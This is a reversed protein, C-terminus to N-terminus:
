VKDRNKFGSDIEWKKRFHKIENETYFHQAFKSKYMKDLYSDPLRITGKFKAYLEAYDKQDGINQQIIKINDISLLKNIAKEACNNLDELRILLIDVKDNKYIEYGNAVPFPTDFVDIEFHPKFERDFYILPTDHRCKEFFIDILPQFNNKDITIEFDYESSKLRWQTDLESTLVEINEFFTALNRAVPDRVLTVVKWKEGKTNKALKKQLYQYQWIHKLSGENITGLYKKRKNEYKTVLEPTLFHVHYIHRGIKAKYLSHTVTKSGVKGMQYILLPPKKYRNDARQLYKHYYARATLYSIRSCREIVNDIKHYLSKVITRAVSPTTKEM